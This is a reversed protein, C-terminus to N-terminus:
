KEQEAWQVAYHVLEASNKICLKSKLHARHTEVTKVSRNLERAIDSTAFGRGILLFVELERDSLLDIPSLASEDGRFVRQLIKAQINESLYIEGGMVRRIAALVKATAEQKMIYGRAGARLAREAYLNEDHMSVVLAPTKPHRSKLTKVLEIGSVGELSIDVLLIDAACSAMIDLAEQADAAEYCTSFDEEQNILQAIGQRVIPHDDVILVRIKKGPATGTAM